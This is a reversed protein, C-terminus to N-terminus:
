ARCRPTTSSARARAAVPRRSGQACSETATLALFRRFTNKKAGTTSYKLCEIITTKGCGNAGVIMTLPNSRFGCVCRAHLTRLRPHIERPHIERASSYACWFEITQEREPSFSRVGRIALKEMCAM